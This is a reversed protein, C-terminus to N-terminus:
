ASLLESQRASAMEVQLEPLERVVFPAPEAAGSWAPRKSASLGFRAALGARDADPAPIMLVKVEAGTEAVTEEFLEIAVQVEPAALKDWRANVRVTEATTLQVRHEAWDVGLSLRAVAAGDGGLAYFDLRGLFQESLGPRIMMEIVRDADPSLRRAAVELQARLLVSRTHTHTGTTTKTM